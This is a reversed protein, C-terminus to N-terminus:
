YKNFDDVVINETKANGGKIANLTIEITNYYTHWGDSLQKRQAKYVFLDEFASAGHGERFKGDIDDWGRGTAFLLRYEGDPISTIKYDSNAKVFVMYVAANKSTDVLKAVAHLSSGNRIKLEGYGRPMKNKFVFGNSPEPYDAPIPTPTPRIPAFPTSRAVPTDTKKPTSSSNSPKDGFIVIFLFVLFGWGLISGIVPTPKTKKSSSYDKTPTAPEAYSPRPPQPPAYTSHSRNESAIKYDYQNRTVPNKLVDYAQNLEKFMENALDWEARQNTQNFRDPHLMKCRILFAKKLEDSSASKSVGLIDYYTKL